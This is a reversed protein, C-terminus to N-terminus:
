VVRLDYYKEWPNTYTWTVEFVQGANSFYGDSDVIRDTKNLIENTLLRATGSNGITQNKRIESGSLMGIYGQITTDTVTESYAGGSDPVQTVVRKKLPKYYDEKMQLTEAM